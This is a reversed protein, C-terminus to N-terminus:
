QKNLYAQMIAPSGAISVRAMSDVSGQVIKGFRHPTNFYFSSLGKMEYWLSDVEQYPSLNVYSNRCYVSLEPLKMRIFTVYRTNEAVVKFPEEQSMDPIDAMGDLVTLSALAPAYVKLSHDDYNLDNRDRVLDIEYRLFLTDGRYSEKLYRDLKANMIVQPLFRPGVELSINRQEQIYRADQFGNVLKGNFVLHRFPKLPRTINESAVIRRNFNGKAYQVKLLLNFLIIMGTLVVLFGAFIKNSKKM